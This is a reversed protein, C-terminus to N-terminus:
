FDDGSNQALLAEHSTYVWLGLGKKMTKDTLFIRERHKISVQCKDELYITEKARQDRGRDDKLMGQNQILSIIKEENVEIKRLKASSKM